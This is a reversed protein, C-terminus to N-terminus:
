TGSEIVTFPYLPFLAHTLKGASPLNYKKAMTELWDLQKKELHLSLELKSGMTDSISM